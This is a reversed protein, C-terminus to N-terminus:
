SADHTVLYVCTADHRDLLIHTMSADHSSVVWMQLEKHWAVPFEKVLREWTAWPSRIFDKSYPNFITGDIEVRGASAATSM